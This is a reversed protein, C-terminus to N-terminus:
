HFKAFTLWSSTTKLQAHLLFGKLTNPVFYISLIYLKCIHYKEYLCNDITKRRRETSSSGGSKAKKSSSVESIKQMKKTVWKFLKSIWFSRNPLQDRTAMKSVNIIKQEIQGTSFNQTTQVQSTISQLWFRTKISVIQIGGSEFNSIEFELFPTTSLIKKNKLALPRRSSM